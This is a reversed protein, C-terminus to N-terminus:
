IMNLQDYDEWSDRKARTARASLAEEPQMTNKKYATKPSQTRKNKKPIVNEVLNENGTITLEALRKSITQPSEYSRTPEPSHSQTAAETTIHQQPTELKPKKTEPSMLDDLVNMIDNTLMQPANATDEDWNFVHRIEFEDFESSNAAIPKNYVQKQGEMKVFRATASVTRRNYKATKTPEQQPLVWPAEYVSCIQESVNITPEILRKKKLQADSWCHATSSKRIDMNHSNWMATHDDATPSYDFARIAIQQIFVFPVEAIFVPYVQKHLIDIANCKKNKLEFECIETYVARFDDVNLNDLLVRLDDTNTANIIQLKLKFFEFFLSNKLKRLLSGGVPELLRVCTEAGFVRRIAEAHLGWFDRVGGSYEKIYQFLAGENMSRIVSVVTTILESEILPFVLLGECPSADSKLPDGPEETIIGELCRAQEVYAAWELQKQSYGGFSPFRRAFEQTKFLM